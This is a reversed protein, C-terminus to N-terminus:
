SSSVRATLGGLSLDLRADFVPVGFSSSSSASGIRASSARVFLACLESAGRIRPMSPLRPLTEDDLGLVLARFESVPSEMLAVVAAAAAAAVVVLLLSLCLFSLSLCLLWLFSFFVGYFTSCSVITLKKEGTTMM